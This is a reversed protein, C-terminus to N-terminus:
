SSVGIRRAMDVDTAPPVPEAENVALVTTGARVRQGPRVVIRVSDVVPLVLDVQSGFRIAGFRQGLAVDQGVKVFSVIRRVLRSAIQVTAVQLGGREFLTTTRENEFVAEPRRLSAFRGPIHQQFTIRGAIPARQVHVDLFSMAIGIV